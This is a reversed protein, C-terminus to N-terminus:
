DLSSMPNEDEELANFLDHVPLSKAFVATAERGSLVQVHPVLQEVRKELIKSWGKAFGGVAKGGAFVFPDGNIVTNQDGLVGTSTSTEGQAFAEGVAGIGAVMGTAAIAKGMPDLLIGEMGRLGDEGVVWGDVPYVKRRGDPLRINLTTIRFLARSDTLSGQAAAILRAEGLPLASGDPGYVDSTLKFVVPYPTGDTPANVGALLKIRVSDGAGIFAVKSPAPPPPPAVAPAQTDGFQAFDETASTTEVMAGPAEGVDVPNVDMAVPGGMQGGSQMSQSETMRELIKKFIEATRQENDAMNKVVETIQASNQATQTKIQEVDMSFRQVIDNYAEDRSMMGADGITDVAQNMRPTPRRRPEPSSTLFAIALVVAVAGFQARKDSKLLLVLDQIKQKM